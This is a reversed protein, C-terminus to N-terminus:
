QPAPMEPAGAPSSDITSPLNPLNQLSGAPDADLGPMEIIQSNIDGTQVQDGDADGTGDGNEGNEEAAKEQEHKMLQAQIEGASIQPKIGISHSLNARDDANMNLWIRNAEISDGRELATLFQQQPPVSHHHLLSCGMIALVATILGLWSLDRAVGRYDGGDEFRALCCSAGM